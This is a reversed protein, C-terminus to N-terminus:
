LPLFRFYDCLINALKEKHLIFCNLSIARTLRDWYAPIVRVRDLEKDFLVVVAEPNPNIIMIKIKKYHEIREKIFEYLPADNLHNGM